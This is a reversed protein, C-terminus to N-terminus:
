SIPVLRENIFRELQDRKEMISRELSSDVDQYLSMIIKFEKKNKELEWRGIIKENLWISPRLEGSQIMGRSAPELVQTPKSPWYSNKNRPFLKPRDKETIFWSRDIYAKPFHDEYPLFNIVPDSLPDLSLAVEYDTRDMYYFLNKVKHSFIENELKHLIEKVVKQSLGLWWVLDADSVPGFVQIYRHILQTLAQEKSIKNLDTDVWRSVPAYTTLNSRAHKATARIIKGRAMAGLLFGRMNPALNPLKQKLERTTMPSSGLAAVISEIAHDIEDNTFDKLYPSKILEDYFRPCTAQFVLAINEVHVVFVTRRFANIRVLKDGTNLSQFVKEPNYDGIRSYVSLYPTWYDTSHLGLHNKAIDHFNIKDQELLYQKRLQNLRLQQISAGSM